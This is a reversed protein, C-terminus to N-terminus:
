KSIAAAKVHCIHGGAGQGISAERIAVAVDNYTFNPHLDEESPAEELDKMSM